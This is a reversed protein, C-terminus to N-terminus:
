VLFERLVDEILQGNEQNRNSEAAAEPKAPEKIEANEQAEKAAAAQAQIEELASVMNKEQESIVQRKIKERKKRASAEKRSEKRAGAEKMDVLNAHQAKDKEPQAEQEPVAALTEKEQAKQERELVEAAEAALRYQRLGEQEANGVVYLRAQAKESKLADMDHGSGHTEAAKHAGAADAPMSCANESADSGYVGARKSKYLEEAENVGAAQFAARESLEMERLEQGSEPLIDESGSDESREPARNMFYDKLNRAAQERKETLNALNDVVLNMIVLWIGVFFTFLVVERDCQYFVGTIAAFVAIGACLLGTQGGFKDWTSLMIGLFKRNGVYKDVFIDVNHVKGFEETRELYDQRMRQLWKKRTEQMRETNRVMRGFYWGLLIKSLIGIGCIGAMLYLFLGKEYWEQIM